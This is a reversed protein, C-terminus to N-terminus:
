DALAALSSPRNYAPPRQVTQGAPCSTHQRHTHCLQAILNESRLSLITTRPRSDM